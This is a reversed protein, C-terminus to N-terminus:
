SFYAKPFIMQRSGQKAAAQLQDANVKVEQSVWGSGGRMDSMLFTIQSMFNEKTLLKPLKIFSKDKSKMVIIEFLWGYISSKTVHLRIWRKLAREPSESNHLPLPM